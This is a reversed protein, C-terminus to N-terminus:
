GDIALRQANSVALDPLDSDRRGQGYPTGVSGYGQLVPPVICRKGVFRQKPLQQLSQLAADAKLGHAMADHVAPAPEGRGYADIVRHQRREVREGRESRQVLRMIERRHTGDRPLPGVQRLDGTEVGGEM